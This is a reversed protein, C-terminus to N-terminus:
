HVEHPLLRLGQDCSAVNENLERNDLAEALYYVVVGMGQANVKQITRRLENADLGAIFKLGYTHHLIRNTAKVGLVNSSLRYLKQANNVISDYSCSKLVALNNLVELTSLNEYIKYSKYQELTPRVYRKM